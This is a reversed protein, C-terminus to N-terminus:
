GARQDSTQLDLRRLWASRNVRRDVVHLECHNWRWTRKRQKRKSASSATAATSTQASNSLSLNQLGVALDPQPAKQYRLRAKGIPTQHSERTRRRDVFDVPHWAAAATM